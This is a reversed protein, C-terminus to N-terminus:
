HPKNRACKEERTRSPRQVRPHRTAKASASV